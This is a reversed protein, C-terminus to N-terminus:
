AVLRLLETVATGTTALHDVLAPHGIHQLMMPM